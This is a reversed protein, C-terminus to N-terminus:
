SRSTSKRCRHDLQPWFKEFLDTLALKRHEILRDCVERHARALTEAAAGEIAERAAAVLPRIAAAEEEAVREAEAAAEEEKRAAVLLAALDPPAPTAVTLSAAKERAAAVGEQAARVRAQVQEHQRNLEAYRSVTASGAFNERALALTADKVPVHGEPRGRRAFKLDLTFGDNPRDYGINV